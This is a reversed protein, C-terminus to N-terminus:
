RFPAVDLHLMGIAPLNNKWVVRLNVSVSQSTRQSVGINVFVTKKLLDPSPSGVM